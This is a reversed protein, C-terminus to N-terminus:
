KKEEGKRSGSEEEWETLMWHLFNYERSTVMGDRFKEMFREVWKVPILGGMKYEELIQMAHKIPIDYITEYIVDVCNEKDEWILGKGM